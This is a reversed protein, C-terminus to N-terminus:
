FKKIEEHQIFKTIKIISVPKDKELVAYERKFPNLNIEKFKEKDKEDKNWVDNYAKIIEKAEIEAEEESDWMMAEDTKDTHHVEICFPNGEFHEFALYNGQENLLAYGEIKKM